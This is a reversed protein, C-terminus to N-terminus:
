CALYKLHYIPGTNTNHLREGSCKYDICLSATAMMSQIQPPAKMYDKMNTDSQLFFFFIFNIVIIHLTITNHHRYEAPIESLTFAATKRRQLECSVSAPTILISITQTVPNEWRASTQSEPLRKNEREAARVSVSLTNVADGRYLATTLSPWPNNSAHQACMSLLNCESKCSHLGARHWGMLPGLGYIVAAQSSPLVPTPSSHWM